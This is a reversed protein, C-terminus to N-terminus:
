DGNGWKYKGTSGAFPRRDYPDTFDWGMNELDRPFAKARFDADFILHKKTTTDQM